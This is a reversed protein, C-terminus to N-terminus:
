RNTSEDVYINEFLYDHLYGKVNLKRGNIISRNMAETVHEVRIIEINRVTINKHEENFGWGLQIAAGNVQQWIVCDQFLANDYYAKISDDNVKFFCNEVLSNAGVGVGDTCFTWGFAKINHVYTKGRTLVNFHTPDTFTLGEVEHEHGELYVLPQKHINFNFTAGNLAEKSKSYPQGLGSVVGRGLIKIDKTDSTSTFSGIVYAGGEIFVTDGSNLKLGERLDKIDFDEVLNYLGPPFYITNNGKASLPIKEGTKLTAVNIVNTNLDPRGEPMPNAFLMLPNEYDENIDLAIQCQKVFILELDGENTITYTFKDNLFAKPRIDVNTIPGDNRKIVVKVSDSFSFDVWHNYDTMYKLQAFFNNKSMYVFSSERQNSKIEIIDVSYLKSSLEDVGPGKYVEFAENGVVDINELITTKYKSIIPAITPEPKKTQITVKDQSTTESTQLTTTNMTNEESISKEDDPSCGSIILLTILVLLLKKIMM